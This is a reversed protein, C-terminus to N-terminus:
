HEQVKEAIRKREAEAAELSKEFFEKQLKKQQDDQDSPM